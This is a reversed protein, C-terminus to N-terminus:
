NVERELVLAVGQGVGICMTVLAYRGGCRELQRAATLALRTGSAGLPHGLAIAGGNVNIRSDDASIKMLKLCALVQSAFAENLEIVDIKDLTLGVRQLAKEAAPVPGLGMLRPEVGAVASSVIRALPRMGSKEGAAKSGVFIAAAGDNVGSANGATVVGGEYISRLKALGELTASPRPHEDEAVQTQNGKRDIVLVPSVEGDFFGASKAAAYKQQSNLAFLDSDAREIGVEKAVFDGTEPMQHDGYASVQRPNSFRPGLTTDFITASRDFATESKPIVFPARTMSEVGGALFLDGRNALVSNAAEIVASLGSGCLRNVTQGAVSIPLGAMLASRRAINRSDEAAQNTCGITVDEIDNPDFATSKMLRGILDALLDDPRAHALGGGHRGFPTRLGNYLFADAM